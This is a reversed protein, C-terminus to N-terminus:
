PFDHGMNETKRLSNGPTLVTEIPIAAGETPVPGFGGPDPGGKKGAAPQKKKIGV